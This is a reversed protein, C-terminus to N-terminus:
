IAAIASRCSRWGRRFKPRWPGSADGIALTVRRGAALWGRALRLQAREVGGGALDQAYTLIHTAAM